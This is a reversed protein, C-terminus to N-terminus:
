GATFYFGVRIVDVPVGASLFFAKHAQLKEAMDEPKAEKYQKFIHPEDRRDLNWASADAVSKLFTYVIPFNEKKEKEKEEEEQRSYSRQDKKRWEKQLDRLKGMLGEFAENTPQEALQKLFAKTADGNKDMISPPPPPPSVTSASTSATSSAAASSPKESGGGQRAMKKARAAAEYEEYEEPACLGNEFDSDKDHLEDSAPISVYCSVRQNASLSAIMKRNEFSLPLAVSVGFNVITSIGM